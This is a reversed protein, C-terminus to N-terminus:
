TPRDNGKEMIFKTFQEPINLSEDFELPMGNAICFQIREGIDLLAERSVPSSISFSYVLLALLDVIKMDHFECLEDLVQKADKRMWVTTEEYQPM